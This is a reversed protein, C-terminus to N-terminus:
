GYVRLVAKRLAAQEQGLRVVYARAATAPPGIGHQGPAVEYPPLVSPTATEYLRALVATM